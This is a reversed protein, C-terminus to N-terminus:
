ERESSYVAWLFHPSCRDLMYSAWEGIAIESRTVLRRYDKMYRIRGDDLHRPQHVVNPAIDSFVIYMYAFVVLYPKGIKKVYDDIDEIKSQIVCLDSLRRARELKVFLLFLVKDSLILRGNASKQAGHTNLKQKTFQYISM